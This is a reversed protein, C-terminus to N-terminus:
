RVWWRKPKECSKMVVAYRSGEPVGVIEAEWHGDTEYYNFRIEKLDISDADVGNDKAYQKAGELAEKANLAKDGVWNLTVTIEPFHSM